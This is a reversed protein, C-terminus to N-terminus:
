LSAFKWRGHRTPYMIRLHATTFRYYIFINEDHASDTAPLASDGPYLAASVSGSLIHSTFVRDPYRSFNSPLCSLSFTEWDIRLMQDTTFGSTRLRIHRRLLKFRTIFVRSFQSFYSAALLLITIQDNQLFPTVHREQYRRTPSVNQLQAFGPWPRHGTGSRVM